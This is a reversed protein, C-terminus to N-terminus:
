GLQKAAHIAWGQLLGEIEKAKEDSTDLPLLVLVSVLKGNSYITKAPKKPNTCDICLGSCTRRECLHGRKCPKGTFYRKKGQAVAEYRDIITFIM